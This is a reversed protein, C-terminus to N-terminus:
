HSMNRDDDIDDNCREANQDAALRLTEVLSATSGHDVTAVSIVCCQRDSGIRRLKCLWIPEHLKLSVPTAAQHHATLM